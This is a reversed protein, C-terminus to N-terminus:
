ILDCCMEDTVEARAVNYTCNSCWFVNNDFHKRLENPCVSVYVMVDEFLFHNICFNGLIEFDVVKSYLLKKLFNFANSIQAEGDTAGDSGAEGGM